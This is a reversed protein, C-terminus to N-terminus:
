VWEPELKNLFEPKLLGFFTQKQLTHLEDLRDMIDGKIDFDAADAWSDIDLISGKVDDAGMRRTASNHIHLRAHCRGQKLNMVVSVEPADLEKGNITLSLGLNRIIPESFFDRYRLRLPRAGEGLVGQNLLRKLLWEFEPRLVQKWGPYKEVFNLSIM